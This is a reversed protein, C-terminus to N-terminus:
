GPRKSSSHDERSETDNNQLRYNKNFELISNLDTARREPELQPRSTRVEDPHDKLPPTIGQVEDKLRRAKLLDTLAGNELLKINVPRNNFYTELNKKIGPNHHYLENIMYCAVEAHDKDIVDEGILGNTIINMLKNTETQSKQLYDIESRCHIDQLKNIDTAWTDVYPNLKPHTLMM